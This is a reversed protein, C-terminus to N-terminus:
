ASACPRTEDLQKVRDPAQECSFTHQRPLMFTVKAFLAGLPVPEASRARPPLNGGEASTITPDPV